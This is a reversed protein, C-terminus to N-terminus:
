EPLTQNVGADRLTLPASPASSAESASAASLSAPARLEAVVKFALTSNPALGRVTARAATTSAVTLTYGDASCYLRYRRATPLPRWAVAATSADVAAATPLEDFGWAAAKANAAARAKHLKSWRARFAGAGAQALSEASHSPLPPALPPPPSARWLATGVACPIRGVGGCWWPPPSPPPAPSALLQLQLDGAAEDAAWAQLRSQVSAEVAADTMQHTGHVMGDVFQPIPHVPLHPLPLLAAGDM